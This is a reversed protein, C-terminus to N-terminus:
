RTSNCHAYIVEDNMIRLAEQELKYAEYRKENAALALDNIQKQIEHNKLLPFGVESLSHDNIMDVVSGYTQRRILVNGWDSNLFIYIYGAISDNAPVVKLVNQSVAYGNWHRPVMSVIGISGRDTVLIMNEEVKLEKEYRTKHILKSLFKEIDPSLQTIEKGGLFPYGYDESVYTRKFVGALIIKKSVRKDGITTVEEAYKKLHGKIAEVIPVHYSADLRGSIDSLKVSFTNVQTDIKKFEHISPLKLEDVMLKTAEDILENSEDRLAYSQEILDSIRKKLEKPANPIPVTDLHDAEIHTIVAGYNNTLLIKNGIASKLYTYIYGADLPNNCTIRLLDHSFIQNDLTKSVYSLKGVTGSCTMLIQGKHVRLAEIDTKTLRSIYGDPVPKIDVIASPQYIPYESKEVWIRKFRGCTYASAFGGPGCLTKPKYKGNAILQRAQKAEIDFVSAELRIGRSIVDSLSVTCWKLSSDNIITESKVSETNYRALNDNVMDPGGTKEM